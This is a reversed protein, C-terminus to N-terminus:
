NKDVILSKLKRIEYLFNVFDHCLLFIFFSMSLGSRLGRDTHEIHWEIKNSKLIHHYQQYIPNGKMSHYDNKRLRGM